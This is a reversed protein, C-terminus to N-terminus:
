EQHRHIAMSVPDIARFYREELSEWSATKEQQLRAEALALGVLAFVLVTALAFGPRGLLRPLWGVRSADRRSEAERVSIKRWVRVALRGDDEPPIVNWDGLLADLEPDSPKRM